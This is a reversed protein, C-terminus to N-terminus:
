EIKRQTDGEIPEGNWLREEQNIAQRYTLKKQIVKIAIPLCSEVFDWHGGGGNNDIYELDANEPDNPRNEELIRIMESMCGNPFSDTWVEFEEGELRAIVESCNPNLIM